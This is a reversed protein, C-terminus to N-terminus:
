LVIQITDRYICNLMKEKGHSWSADPIEFTFNTFNSELNQKNLFKSQFKSEFNNQISRDLTAAQYNINDKIHGCIYKIYPHQHIIKLFKQRLLLFEGGGNKKHIMNLMRLLETFEIKLSKNIEKYPFNIGFNTKFILTLFEDAINNKKNLIEEYDIISFDLNPLSLNWNNLIIEPNLIKSHLPELLHSLLFKSFVVDSGFKVSEQWHSYLLEPSKRYFYVIKVPYNIGNILDFVQNNDWRDFNESSLLLYDNEQYQHKKQILENILIKGSQQNAIKHHACEKLFILDDPYFIHNAALKERNLFLMKQLYTSATKHPGIHIILNM